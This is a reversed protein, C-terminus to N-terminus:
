FEVVIAGRLEGAKFGTAEDRPYLRRLSEAVQGPLSEAPGHCVLCAPATPLPHYYRARSGGTGDPEALLLGPSPEGPKWQSMLAALARADTADQANAPNRTRVGVRRLGKVGPHAALVESTLPLARLNCVGIAAVPGEKAMTEQLVSGLRSALARSVADGVSKRESARESAALGAVLLLLCALSTRM